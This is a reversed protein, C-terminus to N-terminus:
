RGRFVPRRKELFARIGEQYDQTNFCADPLQLEENDLDVLDPKRLVTALMQKHWRQVLPALEAMQAALEDVQADVRDLPWVQNLFGMNHAQAADVLRATMLLDTIASLGILAVFRHLSGYGVLTGLRAVPLGLVANDAGIRLDCHGALLFGGGVCYGKIKAVVPKGLRELAQLAQEVRQNYIKAQWANSRREDFERIDGGASFAQDGAGQIVVVRVQPDLDLAQCLEALRTWMALDLVNRQEPRNITITAVARDVHLLLSDV